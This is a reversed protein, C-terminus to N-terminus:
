QVLGISDKSYSYPHKMYRSQQHTVVLHMTMTRAVLISSQTSVTTVAAAEQPSM